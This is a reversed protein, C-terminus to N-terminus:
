LLLQIESRYVVYIQTMRNNVVALRESEREKKKVCVSKSKMPQLSSPSPDPCQFASYVLLKGSKDIIHIEKKEKQM